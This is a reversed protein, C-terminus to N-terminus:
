CNLAGSAGTTGYRVHGVAMSGKPLQSISDKGFVEGVLGVGKVSRFLGDECVVIGASEQGRHQLAYLGYYVIGAVDAPQPSYVGFVGCEDHIAM